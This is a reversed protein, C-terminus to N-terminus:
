RKKNNIVIFIEQFTKPHMKCLGILIYKVFRPSRRRSFVHMYLKEAFTGFERMPKTCGSMNHIEKASLVFNEWDEFYIETIENFTTM